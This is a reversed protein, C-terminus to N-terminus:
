HITRWTGRSSGVGKKLRFDDWAQCVAQRKEGEALDSMLIPQLRMGDKPMHWAMVLGPAERAQSSLQRPAPDNDLPHPALAVEHGQSLDIRPHGAEAAIRHHAVGAECRRRRRAACRAAHTATFRIPYVIAGGRCPADKRLPERQRQTAPWTVLLAVAGQDRPGRTPAGRECYSAGPTSLTGVTRDTNAENDAGASHRSHRTFRVV